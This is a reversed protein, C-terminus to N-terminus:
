SRPNRRISLWALLGVLASRGTIGMAPVGPAGLLPGTVEYTRGPNRQSSFYLRTGSPDLAPGTIETGTVGTLQMVPVVNGSPTLAVIQLNGADEAVYVDGNPGAFVNDPDELEPMSSSALEYVLEIENSAADIRWVRHDGKTSFFVNREHIWCGEGGDFGTASPAQYRTAREAVPLHSPSAIGGGAPNPEVIAHWALPRVEGQQIPGQAQPDLIEAVEMTGSSLDPYTTPTMRYLLGDPRDETLYAHQGVPDIAVAEHEFTGLAPMLTGQSGPAYPDCEYVRGGEFEECSLWTDWPTPGGACNRTTGSLISYSHTITGDAAFRIAGVGGAGTDLESNSVYIWGGDVTAFTAGGDPAAHWTHSTGGVTTGTTAVVRSTFGAPLMLGNADAPQLPGFDDAGGMAANALKPSIWGAATALGVAGAARASNRLLRRRSIVLPM